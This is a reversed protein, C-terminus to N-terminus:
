HPTNELRYIANVATGLTITAPVMVQEASTRRGGTVMVESVGLGGGAYTYRMDARLFRSSIAEFPEQSVAQLAGLHQGFGAAMREARQQAEHAAAALLEAELAERDTRDFQAELDEINQMELLRTGIDPWSAVRRLLVSFSRSVAYRPPGRRKGGSIGSDREFIVEKAVEHADIDAAAVGRASLLDLVAQAGASVAHAAVEASADRAKVTFNIRALDPSVARMAHGTVDIFPFAPLDTAGAPAALGLMLLWVYRAKM